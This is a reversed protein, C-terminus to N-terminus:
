TMSRLKELDQRRIEVLRSAITFQRELEDQLPVVHQTRVQKWERYHGEVRHLHVYLETCRAGFAACARMVQDPELNWFARVVRLMRNIEEEVEDKTGLAQESVEALALPIVDDVHGAEETGEVVYLGM